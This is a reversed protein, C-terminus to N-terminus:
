LDLFSLSTVKGADIRVTRKRSGFRNAVEVQHWGDEFEMRAIPTYGVKKGDVKVRAKHRSTVSLMGNRKGHYPNPLLSFHTEARGGEVVVVSREAPLRGPATVRVLHSGPPLEFIELGKELHYSHGAVFVTSDIPITHVVLTGKSAPVPTEPEQVSAVVKSPSTAESRNVRPAKGAAPARGGRVEESDRHVMLWAGVVGASLFLLCFVSLLVLVFPRSFKKVPSAPPLNIGQEIGDDAPEFRSVPVGEILENSPIAATQPLDYRHSIIGVTKPISDSTHSGVASLAEILEDMSQYRDHPDKAMARHVLRELAPAIEPRLTRLPTPDDLLIHKVVERLSEGLFPLRGTLLEYLIIGLSYVDSRQDADKAGEVQEPSMYWPTGLAVGTATLRADQFKAIGFDLIKIWERGDDRLTVFLNDPKLDRHVIGRRHAEGLGRCTQVILEAARMPELLGERKLISGLDEGELLEMVLYPAGEETMGGDTVDIIHESGIAAAAQAENVFRSVVNKNSALEAHLVKLAGRRKIMQHRAEFVRGMGGEGILRILEYKGDIVDGIKVTEGNWEPTRTSGYSSPVM